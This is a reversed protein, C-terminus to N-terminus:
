ASISAKRRKFFDKFSQELRKYERLDLIILIGYYEDKHQDHLMKLNLHAWMLSQDPLLLQVELEFLVPSTPQLLCKLMKYGEQVDVWHFLRYLDLQNEIDSTYGTMSCFANNVAVIGGEADVLVAASPLHEFITRFKDKM